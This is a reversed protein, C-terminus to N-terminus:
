EGEWAVCHFRYGGLHSGCGQCWSWSFQRDKDSDGNVLHFGEWQKNIKEPSWEPESVDPMGNALYFGCDTCVFVDFNKTM